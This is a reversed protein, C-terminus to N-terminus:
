WLSSYSTGHLRCRKEFVAGAGVGGAIQRGIGDGNREPYMGSDVFFGKEVAEFYGGAELIEEMYLIAREKIERANERLPGDKKLEVMEALSDLGVLTQKATDCAEINYM